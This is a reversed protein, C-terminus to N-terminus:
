RDGLRQDARDDIPVAIDTLKLGDLADLYARANGTIEDVHVEFLTLEDVLALKQETDIRPGELRREILSSPALGRRERPELVRAGLELPGAPEHLYPGHAAFLDLRELGRYAGRLGIKGRRAGLHTRAREIELERADDRRDGAAGRVAADVAAVRHLGVIRHERRDHRDIRDMEHELARFRQIEFVFARLDALLAHGPDTQLVLVIIAPDSLEIEEVVRDIGPATRDAAAGDHGIRVAEQRGAHETVHQQLGRGFIRAHQQGVGRDRRAARVPDDVHDIRVSFHGRSDDLESRQVLAKADNAGADSRAIADDDVALLAHPRAGRHVRHERSELRRAGVASG